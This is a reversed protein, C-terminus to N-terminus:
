ISDDVSTVKIVFYMFVGNKASAKEKKTSAQQTGVSAAWAASSWCGQLSGAMVSMNHSAFSLTEKCKFHVHAVLVKFESTFYRKKVGSPSM